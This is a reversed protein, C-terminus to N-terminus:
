HRSPAEIKHDATELSLDQLAGRVQAIASNLDHEIQWLHKATAIDDAFGVIKVSGRFNLHLVTDYM